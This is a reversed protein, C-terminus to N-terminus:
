VRKKKKERKLFINRLVCFDCTFCGPNQNFEQFHGDRRNNEEFTDVRGTLERQVRRESGRETQKVLLNWTNFHTYMKTFNPSPSNHSFACELPPSIQIHHNLPSAVRLESIVDVRSNRSKKRKDLLNNPIINM